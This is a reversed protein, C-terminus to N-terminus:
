VVGDTDELAALALILATAKDDPSLRSMFKRVQHNDAKRLAQVADKRNGNVWQEHIADVVSM